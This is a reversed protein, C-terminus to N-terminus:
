PNPTPIRTWTHGNWREALTKFPGLVGNEGGVLDASHGVALCSNPGGCSVGNLAGYFSASSSVAWAAGNWRMVYPHPRNGPNATYGFYGAAFCRTGSVCSVGSLRGGMSGSPAPLGSKAWSKGNWHEAAPASDGDGLVGVAECRTATACDADSFGLYTDGWDNVSPVISWQEGNWREAVTRSSLGDAASREGFAFCHTTDLCTLADLRQSSGIQPAPIVTWKAGNWRQMAKWSAMCFNPTACSLGSIRQPTAVISWKHGNWREVLPVPMAALSKWSEGAAM